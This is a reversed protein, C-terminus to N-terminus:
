WDFPTSVLGWDQVKGEESLEELTRTEPVRCLKTSKEEETTESLPVKMSTEEETAESFPEKTSTDEETSCTGVTTQREDKMDMSDELHDHESSCVKSNHLIGHLNQQKLDGKCSGLSALKVLEKTDRSGELESSEPVINPFMARRFLARDSVPIGTVQLPGNDSVPVERTCCSSFTVNGM